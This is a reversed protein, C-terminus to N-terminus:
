MGPRIWTGDRWHQELREFIQRVLAIGHDERAPAGQWFGSVDGRHQQRYQLSKALMQITDAAKLIQGELQARDSHADYDKTWREPAAGLLAHAAQHEAQAVHEKGILRKVPAPLDTLLAEGFDHLLAMRLLRETDVDRELHDAIWLAILAVNYSHAAVSEPHAVGCTIWGTRPLAELREASHILTLLDDVNPPPRDM